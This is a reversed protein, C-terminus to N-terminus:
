DPAQVRSLCLFSTFPMCVFESGRPAMESRLAEGRGALSSFSGCLGIRIPVHWQDGPPKIGLDKLSPGPSQALWIQKSFKEPRWTCCVLSIIYIYITVNFLIRKKKDLNWHSLLASLGSPRFPGKWWVSVSVHVQFTKKKNGFLFYFYCNLEGSRSVM